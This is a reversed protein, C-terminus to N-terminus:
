NHAPDFHLLEITLFIGSFFSPPYPQRLLSGSKPHFPLLAPLRNRTISLQLPKASKLYYLREAVQNWIRPHWLCCGRWVAWEPPSWFKDRRKMLVECLYVAFPECERMLTVCRKSKVFMRLMPYSVYHTVLQRLPEKTTSLPPTNEYVSNTLDAIYDYFEEEIPM